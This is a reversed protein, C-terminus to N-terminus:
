LARALVKRGTQREFAQVAAVVQRGAEQLNGGPHVHVDVQMPKADVSVAAATSGLTGFEANVNRLTSQLAPIQSRIGVIMGSLASRGIAAMRTSPSHIGLARKFNSVIGSGVDSIAKGLEHFGAWIGNILGRILDTGLQFMRSVLSAPVEILYHYLNRGLAQLRQAPLDVLYYRM